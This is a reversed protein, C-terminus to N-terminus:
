APVASSAVMSIQFVAGKCASQDTDALNPMTITASGAVTGGGLVIAPLAPTTDTVTFWAGKCGLVPAGGITLVDGAIMPITTRVSTLQNTSAGPNTVIASVSLTGAGPVIGGAIDSAATVTGVTWAQSTGVQAVGGQQGDGATFFGFAVGAGSVTVAAAVGAAILSKRTAFLKM